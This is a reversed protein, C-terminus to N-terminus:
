GVWKGYLKYGLTRLMASECRQVVELGWDTGASEDSWLGM